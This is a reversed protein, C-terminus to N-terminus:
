GDIALKLQHPDTGDNLCDLITRRITTAPIGDIETTDADALNRRFMRYREGGAGRPHNNRPVTLHIPSPNVDSVGYLILSSEHSITGRGLTWAVAEAFE